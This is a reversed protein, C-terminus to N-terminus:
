ITDFVVGIWTIITSPGQCKDPAADLGLQSMLDLLHHYDTLAKAPLAAGMTEDIYPATDGGVEEKAIAPVAETTRQCVSAGHRLGFPISIDLYFQDECQLMLVPWDLPNTRLQRHARSLDIKYLLCGKGYQLIKYVLTAPTPLWLKFPAGDLSTKPISLDVIVRRDTSDKKPRTMMPNSRPWDFPHTAFSRPHSFPSAGDQHLCLCGQSVSHRVPPQRPLTSTTTLCHLQHPLWVGVDRHTLPRLFSPKM